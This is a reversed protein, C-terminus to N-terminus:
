GPVPEDGLQRKVDALDSEIRKLADLVERTESSRDTKVFHSAFTATLVSLFGIGVFM